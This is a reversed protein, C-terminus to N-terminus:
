LGREIWKWGMWKWSLRHCPTVRRSRRGGSPGLNARTTCVVLLQADLSQAVLLFDCGACDVRRFLFLRPPISQNRASNLAQPVAQFRGSLRAIFFAHGASSFSADMGCLGDM